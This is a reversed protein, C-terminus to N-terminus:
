QAVDVTAARTETGSTGQVAHRRLGLTSSAAFEAVDAATKGACRNHLPPASARRGLKGFVDPQQRSSRSAQDVAGLGIRM